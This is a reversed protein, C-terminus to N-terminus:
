CSFPSRHRLGHRIAPHPTGPLQEMTRQDTQDQLLAVVPDGHLVDDVARVDAARGEVRVVRVLIIQQEAAQLLQRRRELLVHLAVEGAARLRVRHQGRELVGVPLTVQVFASAPL